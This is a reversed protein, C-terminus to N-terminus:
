SVIVKLIRVELQALARPLVREELEPVPYGFVLPQNEKGVFIPDNDNIDNVILNVLTRRPNYPISDTLIWKKDGYDYPGLHDLTSQSDLSRKHRTSVTDTDCELNLEVQIQSLAMLAISEHERDIEYSHLGDKDTYLWTQNPPWRNIVTYRCGPFKITDLVVLNRHPEEEDRDLIILPPLEESPIVEVTLHIQIPVFHM